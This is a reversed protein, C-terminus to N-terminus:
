QKINNNHSNSVDPGNIYVYIAGGVGPKHFFPAGVVLDDKRFLFIHLYKCLWAQWEEM